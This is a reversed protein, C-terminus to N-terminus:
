FLEFIKEFIVTDGYPLLLSLIKAIILSVIWFGLAGGVGRFIGVALNIFFIRKKDHLYQLYDNLSKDFVLASKKRKRFYKHMDNTNVLNCIFM